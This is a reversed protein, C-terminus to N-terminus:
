AVSYVYADDIFHGDIAQRTLRQGAQQVGGLAHRLLAVLPDNDALLAIDGLELTHSGVATLEVLVRQLQRYLARRGQATVVPSAIVLRWANSESEYLWFGATVPAQVQLRRLVERGDAIMERTLSEKVLTNEVM